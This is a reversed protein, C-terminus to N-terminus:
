QLSLARAMEWFIGGDAASAAMVLLLLVALRAKPKWHIM